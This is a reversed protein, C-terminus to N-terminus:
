YTKMSAKLTVPVAIASRVGYERHLDHWPEMGPDNLVDNVVVTRGERVARATVGQGQPHSPDLSVHLGRLTPLHAFKERQHIFLVQENDHDVKAIVAMISATHQVIVRCVSDYLESPTHSEDRIVAQTVESLAMYFDRQREFALRAAELETVELAISLLGSVENGDRLPYRFVRFSRGGVIERTEAMDRLGLAARDHEQTQGALVPDLLDDDTRHQYGAQPLDFLECAAENAYRWHLREDKILVPFPLREAGRVLVRLLRNVSFRADADTPM